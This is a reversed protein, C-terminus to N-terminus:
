DGPQVGDSQRHLRHSHGGGGRNKLSNLVTMWYKVSESEGVWMGLVDKWGDVDIGIAIYIAKKV